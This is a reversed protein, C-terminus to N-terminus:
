VWGQPKVVKKKFKQYPPGEEAVITTIYAAQLEMGEPLAMLLQWTVWDNLIRKIAHQDTKM